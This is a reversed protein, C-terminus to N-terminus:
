IWDLRSSQIKVLSSTKEPANYLTAIKENNYHAPNHLYTSYHFPFTTSKHNIYEIM